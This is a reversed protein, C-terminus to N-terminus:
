AITKAEAYRWTFGKFHTKRGKCCDIVSKTDFGMDEVARVKDFYYENGDSDTGIVPKRIRTALIKQRCEETMAKRGQIRSWDSNEQYTCWELNEVVNNARNNDIHNVCPKNEPNEIFALAVIRHVAWEKRHGNLYLMVKMYGHINMSQSLEKSPRQHIRTGNHTAVYKGLTMVKGYNSVRYLGEYGVVDKWVEEM